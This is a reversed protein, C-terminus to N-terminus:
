AHHTWAGPLSAWAVFANKRILNGQIKQLNKLNELFINNKLFRTRDRERAVFKEWVQRKCWMFIDYVAEPHGIRMLIQGNSRSSHHNRHGFRIFLEKAM